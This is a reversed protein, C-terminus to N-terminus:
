QTLSLLWSEQDFRKSPTADHTQRHRSLPEGMTYKHHFSILGYTCDPLGDEMVM